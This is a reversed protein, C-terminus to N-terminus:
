LDFFGLAKRFNANEQAKNVNLNQVDYVKRRRLRFALRLWYDSYLARRQVFACWHDHILWSADM